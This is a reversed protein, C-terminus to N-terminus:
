GTYAVSNVTGTAGGASTTVLLTVQLVVHQGPVLGTGTVTFTYPAVTGSIQQAASTTITTEAGTASESYMQAAITTSAATVTGGGTYGTNIVVPINAGAVYTSPLNFEWIASNTKASSSTTEGTLVMSTGATRTIGLTTAPTGPTATFPVGLASHGDTLPLYRVIGGGGGPVFTQALSVLPGNSQKLIAQYLAGGPVTQSQTYIESQQHVTSSPAPSPIQDLVLTQAYVPVVLAMLGFLALTLSKFNM